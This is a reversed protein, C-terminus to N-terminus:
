NVLKHKYMTTRFNATTACADRPLTDKRLRKSKPANCTIIVLDLHPVVLFVAAEEREMAVKVVDARDLEMVLM